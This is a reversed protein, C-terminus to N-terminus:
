ADDDDDLPPTKGEELDRLLTQVRLGHETSRDPRFELEPTFRLRIRRGLETRIFGKARDLTDLGEELEGESLASIFVRARRLDRSVDVGTVTLFGQRPDKLRRHLIDALEVQIADAVREPRPSHPM